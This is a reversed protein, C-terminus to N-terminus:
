YYLNKKKGEALSGQFLIKWENWENMWPSPLAVM